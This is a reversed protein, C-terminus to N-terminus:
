QLTMETRYSGGVGKTIVAHNGPGVDKLPISGRTLLEDDNGLQIPLFSSM